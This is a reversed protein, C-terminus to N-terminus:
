DRQIRMLVDYDKLVILYRVVSISVNVTSINMAFFFIFNSLFFVIDGEYCNNMVHDFLAEILCLESQKTLCRHVIM